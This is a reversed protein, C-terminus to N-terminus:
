KLGNNHVQELYRYIETHDGQGAFEEAAKAWVKAMLKLSPLDLGLEQGLDAATSVDKSMLGLGFGSNYAGSLVFQKMKLETSNNRGSSANLVDVITDPDLGFQRGIIMAEAAAVLGAASVFNNLAKMAHASGLTGTVFLSSGLVEFIPKAREIADRDGGAMIALKGERARKVGGSVPADIMVVGHQQLEQGLTATGLPASSSMDIVLPSSVSLQDLTERDTLVSRVISGNPLMLILADAGRLADQMSPMIQGGACAFAERAATSADYGRLTFGAASLNLAMPVGMQGLGVFAITAPSNLIKTDTPLM